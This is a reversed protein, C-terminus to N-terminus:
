HSAAAALRGSRSPTGSSARWTSESCHPLREPIPPSGSRTASMPFAVRIVWLLCLPAHAHSLRGVLQLARRRRIAQFSGHRQLTASRFYGDPAWNNLPQVSDFRTMSVIGIRNYLESFIGCLEIALRVV